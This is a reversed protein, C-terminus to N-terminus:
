RRHNFVYRTMKPNAAGIFAGIAGGLVGTGIMLGQDCGQGDTEGCVVKAFGVGGLLGGFFGVVGGTVAPRMRGENREIAHLKGTLINYTRQPRTQLGPRDRFHASDANLRLFIVRLRTGTLPVVEVSKESLNSSLTALQAADARTYDLNQTTTCGSLVAVMLSVCFVRM